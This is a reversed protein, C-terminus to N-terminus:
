FATLLLYMYFTFFSFLVFRLKLFFLSSCLFLSCNLVHSMEPCLKGAEVISFYLLQWVLLWLLDITPPQASVFPGAQAAFLTLFSFSTTVQWPLGPTWGLVSLLLVLTNNLVESADPLVLGPLEVRSGTPSAPCPLAAWSTFGSAKYVM